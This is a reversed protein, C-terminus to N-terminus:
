AELLNIVDLMTVYPNGMLRTSALYEIFFLFAAMSLRAQQRLGDVSDLHEDLVLLRIGPM